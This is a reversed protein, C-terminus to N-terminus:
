RGSSRARTSQDAKTAHDAINESRRKNTVRISKCQDHRKFSHSLCYIPSQLTRWLIYWCCGVNTSSATRVAAEHLRRKRTEKVTVNIADGEAIFRHFLSDTIIIIIILFYYFYYSYSYDVFSTQIYTAAIAAVYM